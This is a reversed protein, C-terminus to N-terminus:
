IAMSLKCFSLQSLFFNHELRIFKTEAIQDRTELEAETSHSRLQVYFVGTLECDTKVNGLPTIGRLNM